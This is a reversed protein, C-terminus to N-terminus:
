QNGVSKISKNYFANLDVATGLRTNYDAYVKTTRFIENAELLKRNERVQYLSLGTAEALDEMKFIEKEAMMQMGIWTKLTPVWSRKHAADAIEKCMKVMSIGIHMQEERKRYLAAVFYNSDTKDITYSIYERRNLEQLTEKLEKLNEKTVKLQIYQLFDKYSGRFVLMPTSIITLFVLFPWTMLHISEEDFTIDDKMENYLTMARCDSQEEQVEYSTNDGRGKKILHVGYKKLINKQTRPFANKISSEAVNFKESVEQITM